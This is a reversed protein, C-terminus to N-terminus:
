NEMKGGARKPPYLFSGCLCLSSLSLDSGYLNFKDCLSASMRIREGTRPSPNPTLAILWIRQTVCLFHTERLFLFRTERLFGNEAWASM